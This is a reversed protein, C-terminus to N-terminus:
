GPSTEFTDWAGKWRFIFSTRAPKTDDGTVLFLKAGGDESASIQRNHEITNMAILPGVSGVPLLPKVLLLAHFSLMPALLM